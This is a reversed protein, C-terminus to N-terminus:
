KNFTIKELEKIFDEREKKLTSALDKLM